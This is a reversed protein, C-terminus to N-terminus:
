SSQKGGTTRDTEIVRHIAKRTFRLKTNTTEDVKIVVEDERAEVVTGLIGGITQIRDGKKLNKLMDAVSKEQSKKSRMMFLYFVLLLLAFFWMPNDWLATFWPRTAPQTAAALLAPM